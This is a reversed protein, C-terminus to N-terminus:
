MLFYKATLHLSIIYSIYLIFPGHFWKITITQKDLSIILIMLTSNDKNGEV